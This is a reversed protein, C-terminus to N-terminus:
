TSTKEKLGPFISSVKKKKDTGNPNVNRKIGSLSTFNNNKNQEERQQRLKEIRNLEQQKKLQNEKGGTIERAKQPDLKEIDEKRTSGAAKSVKRFTEVNDETGSPTFEGTRTDRIGVIVKGGVKITDQVFKSKSSSSSSKSSSSSSSSKKFGRSTKKFTTTKGTKKDTVKASKKSFTIKKGGARIAM